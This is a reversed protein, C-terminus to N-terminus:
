VIWKYYIVYYDRMLSNIHSLTHGVIIPVKGKSHINKIEEYTVRAYDASTFLKLGDVSRYLRPKVGEIAGMVNLQKILSPLDATILEGNISTVLQHALKIESASLFGTIIVLLPKRVAM